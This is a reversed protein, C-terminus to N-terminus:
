TRDVYLVTANSGTGCRPWGRSGFAGRALLPRLPFGCGDVFSIPLSRASIVTLLPTFWIRFCSASRRPVDVWCHNAGTERDRNPDDTEDGHRRRLVSRRRRLDDVRRGDLHQLTERRGLELLLHL